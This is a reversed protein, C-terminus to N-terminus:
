AQKQEKAEEKGGGGQEGKKKVKREPAKHEWINFWAKGRSYGIESIIKRIEINELSVKTEDAVAKKLIEKSPTAGGEYDISLVIENRKMLPNKKESTIQVKM